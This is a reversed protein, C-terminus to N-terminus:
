SSERNTFFSQLANTLIIADRSFPDVDNMTFYHDLSLGADDWTASSLIKEMTVIYKSEDDGFLSKIISQKDKDPFQLEAYYKKHPQRVQSLEEAVSFSKQTFSDKLAEVLEDFLLSHKGQDRLKQLHQSVTTLRKDEFFYMLAKTPLDGRGGKLANQHVFGIFEFFPLTMKALGDASHTNVIEADIRRLLRVAEDRELEIKNKGVLHKELITWYYPYDGCFRFKLSLEKLSLTNKEEFLYSELTWLPRCLYNFLFHACTDLTKLFDERPFTYHYILLIDMQEQLLTVDEQLYNFKTSHHETQKEKYLLWEVEGRFYSKINSPINSELITKLAISPQGGITNNVTLKQINELELEFM